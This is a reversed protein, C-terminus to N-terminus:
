NELKTWGPACRLPETASGAIPANASDTGDGGAADSQCIISSIVAQGAANTYKLSAGSYGRIGTDISRAGITTFDSSQANLKYEYNATIDTNEGKLTGSALVDFSSGFSANEARYSTQIRNILAINQRAEVQVAKRKQSIYPTSWIYEGKQNIYGMKADKGSEMFVVSLGDRFATVTDFQPNIVIKGTKDIFGWQKGIRVAALGEHFGQAEDFQPNIVIKGTKDIFEYKEGVKVSALGEKFPNSAAIMKKVNGDFIVTGNDSTVTLDFQPNIVIKGAKDIFGYQKGVKVIALDDVFGKAEDFQPNVVIKGTKDIYGWKEGIKVNSLGESFGGVEDFQPNIVIKGAKDIFGHQKGVKVGALDESFIIPNSSDFQPNIVIKGTKDIVGWKENIQVSALGDMFPLQFPSSFQPDIVIKGTKDIYGYKGNVQVAALGDTFMAASDFQPNIVVKGTEDIFGYKKGILVPTLGETFEGSSGLGDFQPQIVVKGERDIFGIKNSNIANFPLLKRPTEKLDSSPLSASISTLASLPNWGTIVPIGVALTIGATAAAIWIPFSNHKKQNNQV